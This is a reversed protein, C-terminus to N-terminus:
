DSVLCSARFLLQVSSWDAHSSTLLFSSVSPAILMDFVLMQCSGTHEDSGVTSYLLHPPPPSLGANLACWRNDQQGYTVFPSTTHVPLSPILSFVPPFRERHSSLKRGPAWILALRSLCAPSSTLTWISTFTFFPLHNCSPPFLLLVFPSCYFNVQM